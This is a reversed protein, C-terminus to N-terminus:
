IMLAGAINSRTVLDINEFKLCFMKATFILIRACKILVFISNSM